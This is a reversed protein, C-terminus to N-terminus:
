SGPLSDLKPLYQELERQLEGRMREAVQRVSTDTLRPLSADILAIAERQQAISHRYFARDYADGASAKLEALMASHEPKVAPVFEEDYSERLLGALEKQDAEERTAMSQADNQTAPRAAGTIADSAIAIMGEAQDGMARLFEQNADRAPPRVPPPAPEPRPLVVQTSSDPVVHETAPAGDGGGCAGLLMAIAALGCLRPLRPTARM